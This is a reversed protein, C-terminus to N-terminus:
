PISSGSERYKAEKLKKHIRYTANHKSRKALRKNRGEETSDQKACHKLVRNYNYGAM